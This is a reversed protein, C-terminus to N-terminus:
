WCKQTTTIVPAATEERARAGGTETGGKGAWRGLLAGSKKPLPSISSQRLGVTQFAARVGALPLPPFSIEDKMRYSHIEGTAVAADHGPHCHPLNSLFRNM